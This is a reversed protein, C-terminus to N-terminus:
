RTEDNQHALKAKEPVFEIAVKMELLTQIM